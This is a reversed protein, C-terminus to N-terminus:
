PPLAPCLCPLALGPSFRGTTGKHNSRGRQRGTYWLSVLIWIIDQHLWRTELPNFLALSFASAKPTEAQLHEKTM